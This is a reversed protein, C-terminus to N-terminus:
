SYLSLVGALDASVACLYLARASLCVVGGFLRGIYFTEMIDFHLYRTVFISFASPLYFVPPYIVTNAFNAPRVGGGWHFRNGAAIDSLSGRVHPDFSLSLFSHGFDIVDPPLAGGSFTPTYRTGTMGGHSIQVSRFFHHTEDQVAFPPLLVSLSFVILLGAFFYM